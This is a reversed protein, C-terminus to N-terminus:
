QNSAQIMDRLDKRERKEQRRKEGKGGVWERRRGMKERKEGGDRCIDHRCLPSSIYSVPGGVFCLMEFEAPQFRCFLSTCLTRGREKGVDMARSKM